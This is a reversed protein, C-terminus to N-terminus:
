DLIKGVARQAQELMEQNEQSTRGVRRGVELMTEDQKVLRMADLRGPREPGPMGGEPAVLVPALTPVLVIGSVERSPDFELVTVAAPESSIGIVNRYMLSLEQGTLKLSSMLSLLQTSHLM